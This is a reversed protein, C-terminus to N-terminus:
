VTYYFDKIHKTALSCLKDNSFEGDISFFQGSKYYSHLNQVELSFYQGNWMINHNLSCTSDRFNNFFSARSATKYSSLKRGIPQNLIQNSLM